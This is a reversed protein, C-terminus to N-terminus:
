SRLAPLGWLYSPIYVRGDQEIRIPAGALEWERGVAIMGIEWNEGIKVVGQKYVAERKM